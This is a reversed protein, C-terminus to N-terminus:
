GAQRPGEMSNQSRRMNLLYLASINGVVTEATM